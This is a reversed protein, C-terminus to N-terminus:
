AYHPNQNRYALNQPNFQGGDHPLIRNNYIDDNSRYSRDDDYDYYLQPQNPQNLNKQEHLMEQQKTQVQDDARRDVDISRKWWKDDHEDYHHQHQAHEYYVVKQPNHGKKFELWFRAINVILAVTALMLFKFQLKTAIIKLLLEIKAKLIAGIMLIKLM